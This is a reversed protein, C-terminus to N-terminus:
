ASCEGDLTEPRFAHDEGLDIFDEPSAAEPSLRELHALAARAVPLEVRSFFARASEGPTRQEAYLDTLRELAEFARRAPV